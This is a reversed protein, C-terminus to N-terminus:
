VCFGDSVITFRGWFSLNQKGKVKRFKPNPFSWYMTPIILFRNLHLYICVCVYIYVHMCVCVYITCCYRIILTEWYTEVKGFQKM